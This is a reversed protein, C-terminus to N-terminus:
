PRCALATLMRERWPAGGDEECSAARAAQERVARRAVADQRTTAEAIGLMLVAGILWVSARASRLPLRRLGSPAVAALPCCLLFLPLTAPNDSFRDLGAVTGLLLLGCGTLWRMGDSHRQDWTAIAGILLPLASIGLDRALLRWARQAATWPTVDAGGATIGRPGLWADPGVALVWAVALLVAGGTALLPASWGRDRRALVVLGPLLAASGPHIALALFGAVAGAVVRRRRIALM